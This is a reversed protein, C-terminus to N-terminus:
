SGGLRPRARLEGAALEDFHDRARKMGAQGPRYLYETYWLVWAENMRNLLITKSIAKKWKLKAKASWYAILMDYLANHTEASQNAVPAAFTVFPTGLRTFYKPNELSAQPANPAAYIRELFKFVNRLYRWVSEKAAFDPQANSSPFSFNWVYRIYYIHLEYVAEKLLDATERSELWPRWTALAHVTQFLKTHANYHTPTYPQFVYETELNLSALAEGFERWKERDEDTVTYVGLVSNHLQARIEVGLFKGFADYLRRRDERTDSELQSSDPPSDLYVGIDAVRSGPSKTAALQLNLLNPLM